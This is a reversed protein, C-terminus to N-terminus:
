VRKSVSLKNSGNSCPWRWQESRGGDEVRREWGGGGAEEWPGRGNEARSWGERGPQAPLAM